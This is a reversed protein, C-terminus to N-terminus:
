RHDYEGRDAPGSHPRPAARWGALDGFARVGAAALRALPVEDRSLLGDHLAYPLLEGTLACDAYSL